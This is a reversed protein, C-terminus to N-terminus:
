MSIIGHEAQLLAITLLILRGMEVRLVLSVIFKLRKTEKIGPLRIELLVFKLAQLQKSFFSLM